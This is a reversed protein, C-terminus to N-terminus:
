AASTVDITDHTGSVAYGLTKSIDCFNATPQQYSRLASWRGGAFHKVAIQIPITLWFIRLLFDACGSRHHYALDPMTVDVRAM